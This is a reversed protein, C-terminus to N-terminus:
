AKTIEGKANTCLDFKRWAELVRRVFSSGGEARVWQGLDTPLYVQIVDRQVKEEPPKNPRGPRRKPKLVSSM